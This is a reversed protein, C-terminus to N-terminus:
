DVGNNHHTGAIYINGAPDVQLATPGGEFPMGTGLAPVGFAWLFAGSSNYKALFLTKDINPTNVMNVAASPNFDASGALDGAIIINGNADTVMQRIELHGCHVNVWNPTQAKALSIFSILILTSLFFSLNNSKNM